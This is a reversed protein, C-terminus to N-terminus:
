ARRGRPRAPLLARLDAARDVRLVDSFIKELRRLDTVADLRAPLWRPATGLRAEAAAIINQRCQEARGEAFIARGTATAKIDMVDELGELLLKVNITGLRWSLFKLFLETAVDRQARGRAGERLAVLWDRASAKVRAEPGVLPLAIVARPTARAVRDPDLESLVVRLPAFTSVRFDGSGIDAPLVNARHEPRGYVIAVIVPDYVGTRACHTVVEEHARREVHPDNWAQYEVYVRPDGARRPEFLLDIRRSSKKVEVSEVTYGRGADLGLLALFVDPFRTALEHIDPDYAM